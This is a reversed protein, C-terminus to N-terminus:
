SADTSYTLLTVPQPEGEVSWFEAENFWHFHKLLLWRANIRQVAADYEEFFPRDISLQNKAEEMWIHALWPNWRAVNEAERITRRVDWNSYGNATYKEPLARNKPM